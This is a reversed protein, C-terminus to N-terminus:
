KLTNCNAIISGYHRYENNTDIQPNTGEQFLVIIDSGGFLFYGFEDGKLLESGVTAMMNVSSVQAMGVPIVAVIGINGYPSHTTDITMVGRAQTFEYGGESNDPADFRDGKLIVDLGVLGQIPYCEKVIGAVPTHFRHYSYTGLFYHVFTGNAFANEYISGKILKAINTFKHSIKIKVTPISSDAEIPYQARFSCDAPCCVVTNDMPSAIARLGPNLERAFFQNFTLWGSPNNSKGDIMSDEVRYKPSYNIFSDAIEQNFSDTSDLFSGWSKAYDVLWQNFWTYTEIISKDDPEVKQQILWYFHNLRDMVEQYEHTETNTWAKNKSQQPIWQAYEILYNKYAEIDLPWQLAAFLDPNLQNQAIFKASHLSSVLRESFDTDQKTNKILANIINESLYRMKNKM